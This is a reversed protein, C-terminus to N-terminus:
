EETTMPGILEIFTGDPDQILALHRGGSVPVPSKGLLKVRAKKLRALFPDLSKVFMTAYQVGTDDQINKQKPHTAKKKFSVLKWETANEDDITKLIIVDFPKGGSLGSKKGFERDISFGGTEVLGLVDKYFALSKKMNSVVVGFSISGSSFESPTKQTLSDTQALSYPTYVLFAIGIIFAYNLFHRM